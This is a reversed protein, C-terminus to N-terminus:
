PALGIERFYKMAGPHIPVVAQSPVLDKAKVMALAPHMRQFDAFNEMVARVVAYALEDSTNSSTVLVAESGITPVDAANGDYMGGPIVTTRYYQHDALLRNVEPGAVRVLKTPCATTVEQILGNPQGGSFIIADVKNSCLAQNQDTQSLEPMEAPNAIARGDNGLGDNGPRYYSLIINRTFNYGAGGSGIGIRRGRLDAFDRIGSDARAVVTFVDPYLGLLMRISRDAGKAVFPGEGHFAAYAIDTQSLSFTTEHRQVRQINEVSGQSSVAVCPLDEEDRELNYLRCIANGVPHYIGGPTGTAVTVPAPALAISIPVCGSALVWFLATTVFRAGKAAVSTGSM